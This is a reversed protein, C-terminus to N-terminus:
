YGTGFMQDKCFFAHKRFTFPIYKAYLYINLSHSSLMPVSKLFLVMDAFLSKNILMYFRVHM